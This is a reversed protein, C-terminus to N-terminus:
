QWRLALTIDAEVPLDLVTPTSDADATGTRAASGDRYLTWNRGGPVGAIELRADARAGDRPRLGLLLTQSDRDYWARRVDLAGEIGVLRPEAFHEAGWPRNYLSWLGDPVNLRAYGLMANGTLPDVYTMNGDADWSIDNRPYHLGGNEWTPRMFRDAHALLGPLREDGTESLGTALYGFTPATWVHGTNEPLDAPEGADLAAQVRALAEPSYPMLTGEPGTRLAGRLQRPFVERVVDRNWANMASATWGAGGIDYPATQFNDQRVRWWMVPFGSDDYMGKRDWAARYSDTAETARTTGNRLDEFRFGLLPFQNCVVFVCNPECAVGLWGNEVMQWHIAEGLTSRSYSFTEPGFGHFVPKWEFTLAGPEDYRDNDFLVAHMGTMAYLHGSYMINERAVPDIWGDRPETLDPDLFPGSRSTEKWYGWVERRMMKAVIREFAPRVAAPAAPLHHYHALGLSYAMYALQYRYSDVWEQGPDASGMHTWEGDPLLSISEFHRLHGLQLDDLEPVRSLDVGLGPARTPTDLSM